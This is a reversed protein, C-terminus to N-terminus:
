VKMNLNDAWVMLRKLYYRQGEDDSTPPSLFPEDEEVDVMWYGIPIRLHTIGAESLKELDEESYFEHWHRCKVHLVM